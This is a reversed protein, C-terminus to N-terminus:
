VAGGRARAISGRWAFGAGCCGLESAGDPATVSGATGRAAVAFPSPVQRRLRLEVDGDVMTRSLLAIPELGLTAIETQAPFWLTTKREGSPCTFFVITVQAGPSVFVM